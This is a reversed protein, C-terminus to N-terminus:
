LALALAGAALAVSLGPLIWDRKRTPAPLSPRSWGTAAAVVAGGLLGAWLWGPLLSWPGFAGAVVVGTVMDATAGIRKPRLGTRNLSWGGAGVLVLGVVGGLIGGFALTPGVIPQPTDRLLQYGIEDVSRDSSGFVMVARGAARDIMLITRYGNTGGNHWVVTQGDAVTTFWHLGIQDGRGADHRPDLATLGPARGTLVAQAYRTMDDPTTWTAAGAPAFADSTWPTLRHGGASTGPITSGPVQDVSAAFTTTSMALPGLLRETVFAQWDSAGAAQALAHGLLAAGLNSYAFQGPETLRAGSVEHLLTARDMTYPNGGSPTTVMSRLIVSGPLPPVGSTHTALSELSVSGVPTGALEPLHTELRDDLRVEGRTVADALLLGNFTKTISGLEMPTRQDPLNSASGIGAHTVSDATIVSAHLTAFGRDDGVVRRLEAALEPSGSTTEGLHPTRPGFAVGLGVALLGLAAFITIRLPTPM